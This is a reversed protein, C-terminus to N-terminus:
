ELLRFCVPVDATMAITTAEAIPLPTFPVARRIANAAAHRLTADVAPTLDALAVLNGNTDVSVRYVAVGVIGRRRAPDPYRLERAIRNRMESWYVALAANEATLFSASTTPSQRAIPAPISALSVGNTAPTDDPWDVTLPKNAGSVSAPETKAVSPLAIPEPSLDTMPPLLPFEPLHPIDNEFRVLDDSAPNVTPVQELDKPKTAATQSVITTVPAPVPEIVGQLSASSPLLVFGAFVATDVAIATAAAHFSFGTRQWARHSFRTRIEQLDTTRVVLVHKRAPQRRVRM